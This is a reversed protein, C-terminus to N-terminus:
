SATWAILKDAMAALKQAATVNSKNFAGLPEFMTIVDGGGFTLIYSTNATKDFWSLSWQENPFTKHLVFADNGRAKLGNFIEAGSSQGFPPFYCYPTAPQCGSQFDNRFDHVPPGVSAEISLVDSGIRQIPDGAYEIYSPGRDVRVGQLPWNAYPSQDLPLLLVAGPFAKLALADSQALRSTTNAAPASQGTTSSNPGSVDVLQNAGADFIFQETLPRSPCCVADTPGMQKGSVPVGGATISLETVERMPGLSVTVAPEPTGGDNVYVALTVLIGESTGTTNEFAIAAADDAADGNIDGFVYPINSARGIHVPWDFGAEEDHWITSYMGNTLQVASEGFFRTQVPQYLANDLADTTLSSGSPTQAQAGASATPLPVAVALAASLVLAGVTSNKM